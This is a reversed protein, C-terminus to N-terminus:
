PALPPSTAAPEVPQADTELALRMQQVLERQRIHRSFPLHIEPDPISSLSLTRIAELGAVFVHGCQTNRCVYTVERYLASLPTSTRIEAPHKCHPCSMAPARSM